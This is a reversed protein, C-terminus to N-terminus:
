RKVKPNAARYVVSHAYFACAGLWVAVAVFLWSVINGNGTILTLLGFLALVFAGAYTGMIGVASSRTYARELEPNM